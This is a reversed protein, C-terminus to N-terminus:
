RPLTSLLRKASAAFRPDALTAELHRRAEAPLGNEILALALNFRNALNLPELQYAREYASLAEARAHAALAVKGLIRHGNAYAPMLQVARRAWELAQEQHGGESLLLALNTMARPEGGEAAARMLEIGRARDTRIVMLAERLVLRPSHTLELGQALAESAREPENAAILADVYLSWANSDHPNSTVAREWLTGDDHWNAQADLTRLASALVIVGGLLFRIQARQISCIGVALALAFGLTPFLLYRDAVVVSKVPLVLRSVPFWGFLWIISAARLVPTPRWRGYAPVIVLALALALGVGGTVLDLTTPGDTAIPYSVANPVVTAGLRLYFGFIGVVMTIWGAPAHEDSVIVNMNMAVMLVPVFAAITVAAIAGLGVLARRLSSRRAPLVFEIGALAALAFLSPAKSWVAAVASLMAGVLWLSSRGMRFRSYSLAAAGVFMVGLLGKRESIWAVSEAHVPHVAWLLCALGAIRRDVGYGALAAFWLVIAALYILLSTLHFGPFWDGWLAYDLAMSLDRVPLYEAGLVARTDVGLDFAIAHLEPRQVIWNDQVLWTDDYNVLGRSLTPAYLTISAVIGLVVLAFGPDRRVREVISTM